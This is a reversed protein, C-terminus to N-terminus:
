TPLIYFIKRCSICIGLLDSAKKFAYFISDRVRPSKTGLYDYVVIDSVYFLMFVVESTEYSQRLLKKGSRSERARLLSLKEM